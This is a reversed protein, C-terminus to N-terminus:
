LKGKFEYYLLGVVGLLAGILIAIPHSIHSHGIVLGVALGTALDFLVM